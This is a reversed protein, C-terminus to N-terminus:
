VVSDLIDVLNKYAANLNDKKFNIRKGFVNNAINHVYEKSQPKKIYVTDNEDIQDIKKIIVCIQDDVSVQNLNQVSRNKPSLPYCSDGPFMYKQDNHEKSMSLLEYLCCGFGWMDSATDYNELLIIEPARYWRSAVHPSLSRKMKEGNQKKLKKSILYKVNEQTLKEQLKGNYISDRVRKTHGSGKGIMKKPQSRAIGFDGIKVKCDKTVFINSPKIDRHIVNAKHLFRLASLINYTLVKIHQDTYGTKSGLKIFKKLDTEFCEM